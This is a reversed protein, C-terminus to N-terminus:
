RTAGAGLSLSFLTAEGVPIGTAETLARRYLAVQEGYLPWLAEADTVRDTKYDVLSWPGDARYCLDIVGQVILGDMEPLVLNFSWERRVTPAALAERGCPSRLFRALMDPDVRRTEEPTMLRRDGLARLQSEIEARLASADDAVPSLGEYRLLSLAKHTAVGRMLGTMEAPPRLFAPMAPLDDMAKPRSLPLPLRKSEATEVDAADGGDPDYLAPAAVRSARLAGALATAGVKLPAHTFRLTPAVPDDDGDADPAGAASRASEMLTELRKRREDPASAEADDRAGNLAAQWERDDNHFVVSWGDKKQPFNTSETSFAAFTGTTRMDSDFVDADGTSLLRDGGDVCQAVWDLMSGAGSVAYASSRGDGERRAAFGEPTLSPDCGLLILEDRARTMAVYLLRAREAREETQARLEVASKLM